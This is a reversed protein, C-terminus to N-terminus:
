LMGDSCLIRMVEGNTTPVASTDPPNLRHRTRIGELRRVLAPGTLEMRILDNLDVVVATPLHDLFIQQLVGIRKVEEPDDEAASHAAKLHRTLYRRLKTGGSPKRTRGIRLEAAHVASAYAAQVRDNTNAPLTEAPQDPECQVASILQSPTLPRPQLDDGVTYALPLDGQKLLIVSEGIEPGDLPSRLQAQQAPQMLPLQTPGLLSQQFAILPSDPQARPRALASRIGDPLSTITHWLDLDSVAIQQLLSIGRQHAAVEDLQDEQEPLRKEEYIRYMANPNVREVDSLLQSDLGIFDHFAQIRKTLRETLNLETDVDTDPWTNHLYITEHSTGIRDVRGFRQVLRVPNWHLDYNLVRNCDQLNQGESILDTAILIRVETGALSEKPKLNAKPAFRKIIAAMGKSTKGSLMAISRDAGGPNLQDYLYEVTAEAESFILVKGSAIEPEALFARLRQLKDDDQPAIRDVAEKLM